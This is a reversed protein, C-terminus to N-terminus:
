TTEQREPAFAMMAEIKEVTGEFWTPYARLALLISTLDDRTMGMWVDLAPAPPTAALIAAIGEDLHRDILPLTEWAMREPAVERGQALMGDRWAAHVARGSLAPAPPTAALNLVMQALRVESPKRKAPERMIKEALELAEPLGEGRPESRAARDREQQAEAYGDYWDESHVDAMPHDGDADVVSCESGLCLEGHLHYGMPPESRATLAARLGFAQLSRRNPAGNKEWADLARRLGEDNM